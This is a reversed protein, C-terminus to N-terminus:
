ILFSIHETDLRLHRHSCLSVNNNGEMVADDCQKVTVAQLSRRIRRNRMLQGGYVMWVLGVVGGDGGMASTEPGDLLLIAALEWGM